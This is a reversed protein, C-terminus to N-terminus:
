RLYAMVAELLIQFLELLQRADGGIPWKMLVSRFMPKRERREVNNPKTRSACAYTIVRRSFSNIRPTIALLVIKM